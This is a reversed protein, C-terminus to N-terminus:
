AGESLVPTIMIVIAEKTRKGTLSGGMLLDADKSLTRRDYQGSTREFGSLVLTEGNKMAVRQLFQMGAVEPTQVAMQGSGFSGMKSLISIDVSFQLIVGNDDTISPLMNLIFGTTVTGPTIQVTSAATSNPVTSPQVAVSQVYSIQDTIAVPVPQRNLTLASATTVISAKGFGSLAALMAKSGSLAGRANANGTPTLVQYSMSSASAGVLSSPSAMSLKWSPNAGVVQNFVANWDVGYDATDTTTLSLVEVRFAVQRSLSKNIQHLMAGVQDVVEKTDTVTITGTAETVAVKGVGTLMTNISERLNDWVSFSSGMRISSDASFTSGTGVATAGTKGVSARLESTGPTSKLTFTKTLLRSLVISGDKYEWNLGTRAALADLFGELRGTYNLPIESSYDGTVTVASLNTNNLSAVAPAPAGPTPAVAAPTAAGAAGAKPAFASANIFVDPRLKVPIGTIKTLREALTPLSPRDPFKLTVTSYFAAPLAGGERHVRKATGLWSGPLVTTYLLKGPGQAVPMQSLKSDLTAQIVNGDADVDKKVDIMNACGSLLLSLASLALLPHKM